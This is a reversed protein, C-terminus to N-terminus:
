QSVESEDRVWYSLRSGVPLEMHKDCYDLLIENVLFSLSWKMLSAELVLLQYLVPDVKTLISKSRRTFSM